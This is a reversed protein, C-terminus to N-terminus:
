GGWLCGTNDKHHFSLLRYKVLLTCGGWLFLRRIFLELFSRDDCPGRWAWLRLLLGGRTLQQFLSVCELGLLLAALGRGALVLGELALAELGLGELGLGKLGRGGLGLGELVLGELGRGELGLGELGCGELGLVLGKFGVGDLILSPRRLRFVGLFCSSGEDLM